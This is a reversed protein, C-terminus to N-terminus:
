PRSCLNRVKRNVFEDAIEHIFNLVFSSLRTQDRFRAFVSNQAVDIRMGYFSVHNPFLMVPGTITSPKAEMATKGNIKAPM